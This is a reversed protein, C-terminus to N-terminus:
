KTHHGAWDLVVQCHLLLVRGEHEGQLLVPGVEPLRGEEEKDEEDEWSQPRCHHLFGSPCGKNQSSVGRGDLVGTRVLDQM